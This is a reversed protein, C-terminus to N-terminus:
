PKWGLRARAMRVAHAEACVVCPFGRLRDLWWQPAWWRPGRYHECAPDTTRHRPGRRTRDRWWLALIVLLWLVVVVATGWWEGASM